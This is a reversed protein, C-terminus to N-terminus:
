YKKLLGEELTQTIERSNYYYQNKNFFWALWVKKGQESLKPSNRIKSLTKNLKNVKSEKQTRFHGRGINGNKDIAVWTYTEDFELSPIKISQGKIHLRKDNLKFQSIDFKTKKGSGNIYNQMTPFQKVSPLVFGNNAIDELIMENAAFNAGIIEMDTQDSLAMLFGSANGKVGAPSLLIEGLKVIRPNYDSFVEVQGKSVRWYECNNVPGIENSLTGTFERKISFDDGTVYCDVAVANLTIVLLLLPLRSM